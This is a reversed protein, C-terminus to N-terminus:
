GCDAEDSEDEHNEIRIHDALLGITESWWAEGCNLCTATSADLRVRLDGKVECLPCTNDPKWAPSDWGATTRARIWWSRVDRLIEDGAGAAARKLATSTDGPHELHLRRLWSSVGVEIDQAVDIADLRAAPKSAFTNAGGDHAGTSTVASGLQELLPPSGVLHRKTIWTHTGDTNTVLTTYPEHHTTPETLAVVYDHVTGPQDRDIAQETPLRRPGAATQVAVPHAIRMTAAPPPETTPRPEPTCHHCQNTPLDSWECRTQTM